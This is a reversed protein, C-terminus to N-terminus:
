IIGNDGSRFIGAAAMLLGDFGFVSNAPFPPVAGSFFGCLATPAAAAAAAALM